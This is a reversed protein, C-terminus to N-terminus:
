LLYFRSTRKRKRSAYRRAANPSQKRSPLAYLSSSHFKSRAMPRTTFPLITTGSCASAKQNIDHWQFDSSTSVAKCLPPTLYPGHWRQPPLEFLPRVM